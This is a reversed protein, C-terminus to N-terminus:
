AGAEAPIRADSVKTGPALEVGEGLVSLSEVVCGAGIV